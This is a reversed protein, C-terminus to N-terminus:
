ENSGGPAPNSRLTRRLAWGGSVGLTVIWIVALMLWAISFSVPVVIIMASLVCGVLGVVVYRRLDLSISMGLYVAGTGVGAGAVLMRLLGEDDIRGTALLWAGAGVMGLVILASLVSIPWGVQRRLPKVIGRERWGPRSRIRDITRRVNTAVVFFAVLLVLLGIITLTRHTAMATAYWSLGGPSFLFWDLLGLWAIFLGVAFDSLGDDFEHRRTEQTMRDLDVVNEMDQEM